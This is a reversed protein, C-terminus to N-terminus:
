ENPALTAEFYEKWDMGGIMMYLISVLRILAVYDEDEFEPWGGGSVKYGYHKEAFTAPDKIGLVQFIANNNDNGDSSDQIRLYDNEVSYEYWEGKVKFTVVDEYDLGWEQLEKLNEVM